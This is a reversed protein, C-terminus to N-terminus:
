DTACVYGDSYHMIRGNRSWGLWNNGRRNSDPRKLIRVVRATDDTQLSKPVSWVRLDGDRTQTALMDSKQRSSSAHWGLSVVPSPSLSTTTLTHLITFSPTLAAVLVSGNNYGLAFSKCDASPAISTLPDFITRASISESRAPDFLIVNGMSDGFALNGNKMWAAVRIDEYATYRAIEDGTNADWVIALKSRDVSVVRAPMEENGPEVAIIAVDEAHREFRRELALSDHQLCLVSSGQAYLFLRFTAACPNLPGSDGNTSKLSLSMSSSSSLLSQQSSANSASRSRM